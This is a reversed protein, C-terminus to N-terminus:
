RGSPDAGAKWQGLQKDIWGRIADIRTYIGGNGCALVSDATRRAVIGVVRFGCTKGNGWLEYVPGGSDGFCTDSGSSGPLVMEWGSRCGTTRTREGDCGWGSAQLDVWHRKGFGSRGDASTVGFGVFRLMGNPAASDTAERLLAPKEIVATKTRVLVADVEATPHRAVEAVEHVTGGKTVDETLVVRTIPLCHAATLVVDKAVAVGSCSWTTGNGTLVADAPDRPGVKVARYDQVPRSCEPKASAEQVVRKLYTTLSGTLTRFSNTAYTEVDATCPDDDIDDSNCDLSVPEGEQLMTLSRCFTASDSFYEGFSIPKARAFFVHVPLLPKADLEEQLCDLQLSLQPPRAQAPGCGSRRGAKERERPLRLHTLLDKVEQHKPKELTDEDQNLGDSVLVFVIPHCANNSLAARVRNTIRDALTSAVPSYRSTRSDKTPDFESPFLEPTMFRLSVTFGPLSAAITRQMAVRREEDFAHRWGTSKNTPLLVRDRAAMGNKTVKVDPLVPPPSPPKCLWPAAGAPQRVGGKGSADTKTKWPRYYVMSTSTDIMPFVTVEVDRETRTFEETHCDCIRCLPDGAIDGEASERADEARKLDELDRWTPEAGVGPDAHAPLVVLAM